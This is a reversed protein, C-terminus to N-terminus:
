KSQIEYPDRRGQNHLAVMRARAAGAQRVWYILQRERRTLQPTEPARLKRPRIAAEVAVLIADTCADLEERAAKRQRSASV